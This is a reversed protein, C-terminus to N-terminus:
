NLWNYKQLQDNCEDRVMVYEGDCIWWWMNVMVCECCEYILMLKCNFQKNKAFVGCIVNGKEYEFYVMKKKIKPKTIAENYTNM